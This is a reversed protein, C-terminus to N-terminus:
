VNGSTMTRLNCGEVIVTNDKLIYWSLTTHKKNSYNQFSVITLIFMVNTFESYGSLIMMGQIVSFRFMHVTQVKVFVCLGVRFTDCIKLDTCENLPNHCLKAEVKCEICLSIWHKKPQKTKMIDKHM